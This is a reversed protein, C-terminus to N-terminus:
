PSGATATQSGDQKFNSPNTPDLITSAYAAPLWLGRGLQRLNGEPLWPGLATAGLLLGSKTLFRRRTVKHPTM